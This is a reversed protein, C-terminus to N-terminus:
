DKLQEAELRHRKLDQRKDSQGVMIYLLPIFYLSLVSSVVMGGVSGIGISARIESGLGSGTAMPLMGMVAAISTMLIPRFKHTAAKLMAERKHMGQDRRLVNVEDMMLIANNVVVGILMVGGLLGLISMPQRTVYLAFYLGLYSFPVTMMIMLPQTWSELIAALLLYTLLIAIFIVTKFEGFADAMKEAMGSFVLRYGTPMIDGVSKNLQQVATGLGAGPALDTYFRVVRRKESRLIQIPQDTRELRSVVDLNIPKGDAGPLNMYQVQDRGSQEVVKVRIDYTRDGKKYTSAKLGEINGRLALAVSQAPTNLDHLVPINPYVRLDPKGARVSHEIDVTLPNDESLRAAERGLRDLVRLDDGSIKAEIMKSAGGGVTNPIMVSYQCGSEDLLLKRYRERVPEIGEGRATKPTLKVLVEALYPGESVQGMMGQVKGAIMMTNMVHPTNKIRDTVALARRLTEDINYDSPYELKISLEGQDSQPVFTMAVRPALFALALVSFVLVAIVVTRARHAISELSRGYWAEMRRYFREWPGFIWSLHRNIRSDHKLFISALIPTLTFSIFLSACTAAAIVVGFCSLMRGSLSQMMGVPIFVVINTLASALVAVAVGATAKQVEDKVHDRHGSLKADINELVVISNTVLIGVSLGFATLTPINMTYGLSPMVAFSIIISAPISIFAILATRIDQLFLILIAGTLLIGQIISSWSDSVTAEIFNADDRFWTLSMGGPLEKELDSVTSRIRRIVKVANAEGKKVVKIAICPKGDIFAANEVRETGMEIRAVDRLYVRQGQQVGVQLNGLDQIQAAEGDYTVSFEHIGDKLTGSPVKVNNAKVTNVLDLTTLGKAALKARDALIHVEQKAGGIVDVNAVGEVTSLRDRLQNDAYDYLEDLSVHGTLGLTVVPRANIDYKVIKPDEVAEPLDNRILDIKERVDMAALDVDRNLEFEILTQCVNNMCTSDLHRIGDVAVVADEIKKAVSTEIEDPSAGPYVTLVTVFPLEISPMLDLGINRYALLGFFLMVLIVVSMAIPRKISANSLFM